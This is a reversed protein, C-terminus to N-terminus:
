PLFAMTSLGVLLLLVTGVSLGAALGATRGKSLERSELSEINEFPVVDAEGVLADQRVEVVRFAVQGGSVLTVRVQDGPVVAGPEPVGRAAGDSPLAVPRYASCGVLVVLALPWGCVRLVRM